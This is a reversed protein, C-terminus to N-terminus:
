ANWTFIPTKLLFKIVDGPWAKNACANNAFLYGWTTFNITMMDRKEFNITMMDRKEGLYIMIKFYRRCKGPQSYKNATAIILALIEISTRSAAMISTRACSAEERIRNWANSKMQNWMWCTMLILHFPCWPCMQQSQFHPVDRFQSTLALMPNIVVGWLTLLTLLTQPVRSWILLGSPQENSGNGKMEMWTGKMEMWIGKMEMWKGKMEMLKGKMEMLKGKMKRENEMWQGEMEMWKRENEM